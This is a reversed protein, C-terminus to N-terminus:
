AQMIQGSELRLVTKMKSYVNSDHTCVIVGMHFHKHLELILDVTAVANQHDLNGTPEDALLFDPKCILARCLAVRSRQGGSLQFPFFNLRDELGVKCLLEKAKLHCSGRSLGKAAGALAVNEIVTLQDILFDDQFMIGVTTTDHRNNGHGWSGFTVQGSTPKDLGSLLHLLTSKGSGSAGTLAYTKNNEFNFSISNFIETQQNQEIFTKSLEKAIIPM